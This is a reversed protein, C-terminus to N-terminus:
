IKSKLINKKQTNNRHVKSDRSWAHAAVRHWVNPGVGECHHILSRVPQCGTASKASDFPTSRHINSSFRNGPQNQLLQHRQWKELVMTKSLLKALHQGITTQNLHKCYCQCLTHIYPNCMYISISAHYFCEFWNGHFHNTMKWLGPHPEGQLAEGCRSWEDPDGLASVRKSAHHMCWHM